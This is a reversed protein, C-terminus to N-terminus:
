FYMTTEKGEVEEESSFLPEPTRGDEVEGILISDATLSSRKSDGAAFVCDGCQFM